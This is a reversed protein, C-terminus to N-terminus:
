IEAAFIYVYLSFVLNFEFLDNFFESKKALFGNFKECFGNFKESKARKRGRSSDRM